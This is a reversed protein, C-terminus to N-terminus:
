RVRMAQKIMGRKFDGNISAKLKGDILIDIDGTNYEYGYHIGGALGIPYHSAPYPTATLKSKHAKCIDRLLKARCRNCGEYLNLTSGFLKITRAPIKYSDGDSHTRWSHLRNSCGCSMSEFKHRNSTPDGIMLRVRIWNSEYGLWIFALTVIAITALM